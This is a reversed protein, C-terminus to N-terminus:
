TRWDMATKRFSNDASSSELSPKRAMASFREGLHFFLHASIRYGARAVALNVRSPMARLSPTPFSLRSAPLIALFATFIPWPGAVTIPREPHVSRRFDPVQALRTLALARRSFSRPSDGWPKEHPKKIARCFAAVLFEFPM